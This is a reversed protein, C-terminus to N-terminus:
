FRYAKLKADPDIDRVYEFVFADLDDYDKASGPIGYMAKLDTWTVVVGDLTYAHTNGKFVRNVEISTVRCNGPSYGKSSDKRDVSLGDKYGSKWAWEAFNNFDSRWEECVEIGKKGYFPYPTYGRNYCRGIM